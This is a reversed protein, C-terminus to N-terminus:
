AEQGEKPVVASPGIAKGLRSELLKAMLRSDHEYFLSRDDIVVDYRPKGMQLEHYRLGWGALQERTLDYGIRYVERVDGGTRGMFRSTHLLIRCGEDYLRNVLEIMERHPRANAYDSEVQECLVGDIDFCIVM